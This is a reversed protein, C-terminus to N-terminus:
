VDRKATQVQAFVNDTLLFDVSLAEGTEQILTLKLCQQPLFSAQKELLLCVTDLAKSIEPLKAQLRLRRQLLESEARTLRSHTEQLARLTEDCNRGEM